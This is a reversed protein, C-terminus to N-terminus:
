KGGQIKPDLIFTIKINGNDLKEQTQEIIKSKILNVVNKKMSVDDVSIKQTVNQIDLVVPKIEGM